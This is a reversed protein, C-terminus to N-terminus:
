FVLGFKVGYIDAETKPQDFLSFSGTREDVAYDFESKSFRFSDYYLATTFRDLKFGAEAFFSNERGPHVVLDRNYGIDSLYATNENYFPLKIGIIAYVQKRVALDVGGRLGARGYATVWKEWYGSTPLGSATSGDQLSRAWVRLGLGAFPEISFGNAARIKGGLDGELKVGFYDTKSRAPECILTIRDCAQGDYDVSGGFIEAAPRLTVHNPYEREYNFILAFLPGSERLLRAGDDDIERWTYSDIGLSLSYEGAFAPSFLASVFFLSLAILLVVFSLRLIKV